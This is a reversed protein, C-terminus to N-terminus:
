QDDYDARNHAHRLRRLNDGIARYLSSPGQRYHPIVRQHADGTASLQLGDQDRARTRAAGYVGYYARSVAARCCAEEPALTTRAQLLAEALVLYELWPFSM